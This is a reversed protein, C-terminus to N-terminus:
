KTYTKDTVYMISIFIYYYIYKMFIVYTYIPTIYFQKSLWLCQPAVSITDGLKTLILVNYSARRPLIKICLLNYKTNLSHDFENTCSYGAKLVLSFAGSFKNEQEEKLYNGWFTGGTSYLEKIKIFM